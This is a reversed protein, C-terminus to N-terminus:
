SAAQIETTYTIVCIIKTDTFLNEFSTKNRIMYTIDCIYSWEMVM